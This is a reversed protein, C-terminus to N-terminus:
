DIENVDFMYKFTTKKTAIQAPAKPSPLLGQWISYPQICHAATLVHRKTIISGGCTFSSIIDGIVLAVMHKASGEPAEVGGVIHPTVDSPQAVPSGTGFLM